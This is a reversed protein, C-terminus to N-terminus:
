LSSSQQRQQREKLLMDAVKLDFDENIDFGEEKSIPVGHVNGYGLVSGTTYLSSSRVLYCASNEEWFPVRDQQRRPASENIRALLDGNYYWLDGRYEHITMVCDTYEDQQCNIVDRINEATRLPSTPPLCLVHTYDTGFTDLAHILTDETKSTDSCYELPRRLVSAGYASAKAMIDVDETSVIPELGATLAADITWALLPVGGCLAMNKHPIRKSGGRAPIITLIKM